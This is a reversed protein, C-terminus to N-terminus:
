RTLNAFPDKWGLNSARQSMAVPKSRQSRRHLTVPLLRLQQRTADAYNSGFRALELLESVLTQAPPRRARLMRVARSFPM